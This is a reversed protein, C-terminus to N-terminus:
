DEEYLDILVNGRVGCHDLRRCNFHSFQVRGLHENIYAVYMYDWRDLSVVKCRIFGKVHEWEYFYRAFEPKEVNIYVYGLYPLSNFIKHHDEGKSTMDKLIKNIEEGKDGVGYKEQLSKVHRPKRKNTEM